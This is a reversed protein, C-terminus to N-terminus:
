RRPAAATALTAATAARPTTSRTGSTNPSRPKSDLVLVRKTVGTLLGDPGVLDVGDKSAQAVLEEALQRDRESRSPRAGPQQGDSQESVTATDNVTNESSM